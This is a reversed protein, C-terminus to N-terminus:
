LLNRLKAKIEQAQKGRWSQTNTLIYPIQAQIPDKSLMNLGAEAYARAYQLNQNSTFAKAANIVERCCAHFDTVDSM